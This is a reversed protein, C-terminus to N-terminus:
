IEEYQTVPKMVKYGAQKLVQICTQIDPKDAEKSYILRIREAWIRHADAFQEETLAKNIGELFDKGTYVFPATALTLTDNFKSKRNGYDDKGVIAAEVGQRDELIAGIRVLYTVAWYDDGSVYAPFLDSQKWGHNKAYTKLRELCGWSDFCTMNVYVEDGIKCKQDAPYNTGLKVTYISPLKWVLEKAKKQSETRAM